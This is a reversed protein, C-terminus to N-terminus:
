FKYPNDFTRDKDIYKITWSDSVGNGRNDVCEIEVYSKYRLTFKFGYTNTNYNTTDVQNTFLGDGVYYKLNDDSFVYLKKFISDNLLQVYVKGSISNTSDILDQIYTLRTAKYEIALNSIIKSSYNFGQKELEKRRQILATIQPDKVQLDAKQYVVSEQAKGIKPSTNNCTCFFLISFVLLYAYYKM